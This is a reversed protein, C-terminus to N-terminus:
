GSSHHIYQIFYLHRQHVYLLFFPLAAKGTASTSLWTCVVNTSMYCSSLFILRLQLPHVSHLVPSTPPCVFSSLCRLRLQPPHVSHTCTGNTSICFFFSLQVRQQPPHVSHTCTVNTSICFFFSLQVRLDPPRVVHLHTPYSGKTGEYSSLIDAERESWKVM